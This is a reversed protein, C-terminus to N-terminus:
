FRIRRILQSFPQLPLLNGNIICKRYKHLTVWLSHSKRSLSLINLKGHKLDDKHEDKAPLGTGEKYSTAYHSYITRWSVFILFSQFEEVEFFKM